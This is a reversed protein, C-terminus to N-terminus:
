KAVSITWLQTPLPTEEKKEQTVDISLVGRENKETVTLVLQNVAPQMFLERHVETVRFFSRADPEKLPETPHVQISTGPDGKALGLHFFHKSAANRISLGKEDREIIWCQSPKQRGAKPAMALKGKGDRESCDIVLGSKKNEILFWPQPRSELDPSAPFAFGYGRSTKLMESVDDELAEAEQVKKVKLLENIAPQYEKLLATTAKTRQQLYGDTPYATPLLHQTVFVQREYTLKQELAKNGMKVAQQTAKEIGTVFSVECKAIDEQFKKKAKELAITRDPQAYVTGGVLLAPVLLIIARRM